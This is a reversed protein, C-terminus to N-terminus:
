TPPPQTGSDTHGSELFSFDRPQAPIRVVNRGNNLGCM